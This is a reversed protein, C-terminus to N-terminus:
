FTRRLDDVARWPLGQRAAWACSFFDARRYAERRLIIRRIMGVAGGEVAPVNM